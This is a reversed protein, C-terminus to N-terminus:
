QNISRYINLANADPVHPDPYDLFTILFSSLDARLKTEEIAPM